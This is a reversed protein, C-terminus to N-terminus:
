ILHNNNDNKINNNNINNNNNNNNYNNENWLNGFTNKLKVNKSASKIGLAKKTHTDFHRKMGLFGHLPQFNQSELESTCELAKHTRVCYNCVNM